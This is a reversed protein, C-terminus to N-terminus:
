HCGGQRFQVGHARATRRARGPICAAIARKRESFKSLWRSRQDGGAVVAKKVSSKQRSRSAIATSSYWAPRAARKTSWGSPDLGARDQAGAVVRVDHAAGEEGAVQTVLDRKGVLALAEHGLRQAGGVLEDEPGQAKM